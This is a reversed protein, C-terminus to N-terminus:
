ERTKATLWQNVLEAVEPTFVHPVDLAELRVEVGAAKLLNWAYEAEIFGVAPDNRGHTILVKVGAKQEASLQDRTITNKIVYGGHACYGAVRQPYRAAVAHALAGGQSFGVMWFRDGRVSYRQKADDAVRVVWDATSAVTGTDEEYDDKERLHSFQKGDSDLAPYPGQPLVYIFDRTNLLRTVPAFAEPSSGYGHLLVVLPYREAPDYEEPLVVLYEGLRDQACTHVTYGGHRLRSNRAIQEVIPGFEKHQRLITLDGDAVTHASDSWGAGAAKRLVQLAGSTDNLIAHCCALNYLSIADGPDAEAWKEYYEKAKAVDGAMLADMALQKWSKSPEASWASLVVSVVLVATAVWNHMQRRRWIINM